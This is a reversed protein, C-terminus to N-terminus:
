RKGTRSRVVGVQGREGLSHEDVVAGRPCIELNLIERGVVEAARVELAAVLDQHDGAGVSDLSKVARKQVFPDVDDLGVGKSREGDDEVFVPDALPGV